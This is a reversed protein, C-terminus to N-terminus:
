RFHLVLEKLYLLGLIYKLRRTALESRLMKYPFYERLVVEKSYFSSILQNTYTLGFYHELSAKDLDKRMKLQERVMQNIHFWYKKRFSLPRKSVSPTVNRNYVAFCGKQYAFRAGIAAAKLLYETDQHVPYFEDWGAKKALRECLGRRFLYNNPPSWRDFLLSALFDAEAEKPHAETQIFTDHEWYDMRWDSYIVDIEPQEEMAQLQQAFKGELIQDDSDLWQIFAGSSQAFAYNRGANGGKRPNRFIQIISPYKAQWTSLIEWSDDSSQDDVVIIEKVFPQQALCSELTKVLHPGGNYNPILISVSAHYTQALSM